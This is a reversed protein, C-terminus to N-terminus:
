DFQLVQQAFALVACVASAWFFSAMALIMMLRM